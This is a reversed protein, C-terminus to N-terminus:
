RSPRLRRAVDALADDVADMDYGASAMRFKAGEVDQLSRGGIDAFFSDVEDARYGPRATKFREGVSPPWKPRRVYGIILADLLLGGALALAGGLRFTQGAGFLVWTGGYTLAVGALTPLFM